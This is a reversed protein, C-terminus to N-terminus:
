GLARGQRWYGMFAVATRPVAREDVMMRRLRKIVGAEGALWGYLERGDREDGGRGPVDWLVANDIDVDEVGSGRRRGRAGLDTLSEAVATELMSGHPATGRARDRILWRVDVGSPADWPQPDGTAPVEVCAIGTTHAPLSELIAGMAPVATEDGALLISTASDPPSWECGWMRGIGPRDPGVLGARDGPRARAAWQSAPGGHGGAIGHLVFDIDIEALHPRYARVTYTRMSPRVDGPMAKWAAHWDPGAPVDAMTRGVQPLMLKVRQDPGGAGFDRLDDGTLTLRVFSPGLRRTRAVEVTYVRYRPAHGSERREATSTRM